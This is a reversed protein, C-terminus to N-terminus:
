FERSIRCSNGFPGRFELRRCDPIAVGEDEADVPITIQVHHVKLVLPKETM